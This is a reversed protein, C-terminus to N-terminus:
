IFNGYPPIEWKPGATKPKALSMELSHTQTKGVTQGAQPRQLGFATTHKNNTSHKQTTLKLSIVANRTVNFAM